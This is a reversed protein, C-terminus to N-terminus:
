GGGGGQGPRPPPSGGRTGWKLSGGATGGGWAAGSAGSVGSSWGTVSESAGGGSSWNLKPSHVTPQVARSGNPSAVRGSSSGTSDTCRSASSPAQPTVKWSSSRIGNPLSSSSRSRITVRNRLASSSVPRTTGMAVVLRNVWGTKLSPPKVALSRPTRRNASRLTIRLRSRAASSPALVYTKQPPRSPESVSAALSTPAARSRNRSDSSVSDCYQM